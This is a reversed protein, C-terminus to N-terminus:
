QGHGLAFRVAEGPTTAAPPENSIPDGDSTLLKWGGITIVPVPRRMALALESLTGPSGGVVIVADASWILIANRAEGVNTALVVDLHPNADGFIM